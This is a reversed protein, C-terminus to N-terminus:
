VPVVFEEARIRIVKRVDQVPVEASYDDSLFDALLPPQEGYLVEYSFFGPRAAGTEEFTRAKVVIVPAFKVNRRMLGYLRHYGDRVMWRGRYEALQVLNSGLTLAFGLLRTPTGTPSQSEVVSFGGIRLNPNLSSTTFANQVKDFGGQLEIQEQEPLTVAFLGDPETSTAEVRSVADQTVIIRQYSLIPKRLDVLKISWDLASMTAKVDPRERVRNALARTSESLEVIPDAPGLPPKEQVRDRFRRWKAELASVDTEPTPLGGNLVAIADEREFYGILARGTRIM